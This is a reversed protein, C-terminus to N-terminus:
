IFGVVVEWSTERLDM